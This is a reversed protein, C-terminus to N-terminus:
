SRSAQGKKRQDHLVQPSPASYLARMVEERQGFMQIMGENLIMLHDADSLTSPRHSILVVTKGRAKMQRICAALAEDGAMDLNSSPEDLVLLCPYNYVARALGIRQRYGGSLIFGGEGANGQGLRTEYGKPLRLILDHVGALQAAEIIAADDGLRFRSINMAVTTDFLEVDQPLYGISQGRQEAPWMNMEAGDLRVSGQSPQVVGVLLRALTSKGAGSPGVIGLVEGAKIQFNITRVVPASAGIPIYSVNEMVIRGTPRPLEIGPPSTDYANLLVAVRQYAEYGSVLSHWAGVLQEIPQLARALLIVAAFMVGGTVSREIVLWAGLGLMLSQMAMRFFRIVGQSLVARDSAETQRSLYVNRFGHWHHILGSAMGMAQIVETNRFSMDSFTYSRNAAKGAETIPRRVLRQSFFALCILIINSIITFFGLAPHLMFIVVIYIVAWPLDFLVHIGQGTYVRRFHDFDRLPQGHAPQNSLRAADIIARFLHENCILDLRNGARTLLYGRVGDLAALTAYSLLVAVTLMILTVMSSSPVVRDYVQLMYLPAALYLLNIALSFVLALGLYRSIARFLTSSLRTM